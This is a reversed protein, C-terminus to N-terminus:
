IEWAVGEGVEVEEVGVQPVPNGPFLRYEAQKM